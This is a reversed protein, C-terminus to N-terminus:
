RVETTALIPNPQAYCNSTATITGIPTGTVTVTFTTGPNTYSNGAFKSEILTGPGGTAMFTIDLKPLVATTGPALPGPVTLTVKGGAQSVTPTGSGLNSGGSLSASVFAAGAPVVMSVKLNSLSGINYGGAETPVEVPDPTIEVVFDGGAAVSWPALVTAGTNLSNYSSQGAASTLCSMSVPTYLPVAPPPTTTTTTPPTGVFQPETTSGNDWSGFILGASGIQGTSGVDGAAGGDGVTPADTGGFIPALLGADGPLGGV